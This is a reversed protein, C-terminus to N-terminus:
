LVSADRGWFRRCAMLLRDIDTADLDGMVAIRFVEGNFQGQGAYIIFGAAKLFDHLGAYDYGEPVRYATIVASSPVQIALLPEVSQTRLGAFVQQSLSRYHNQRAHWGGSDALEQLAEALAHCVHVAQTFASSNKIQEQYHGFLDLYVSTAGSTRTELIEKRVIVFSMGPVSHLCKNATSACAELNWAEFDIAEGGFSSVADLLLGVQYHRCLAGLAPIDNLRGSTTELHVAVVHTIGPERVLIREVATLDMPATWESSALHIVKGQAKLMAAMREGYVGNAVVLAQGNHPVLSGVMAEVAATGSGALLIATFDHAADPYVRVLRERITAQLAAFEPERHCLDERVMAQRVRETLTVPGPNLLKTSIQRPTPYM